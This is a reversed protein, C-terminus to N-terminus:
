LSIKYDKKEILCNENCFPSLVENLNKIVKEKTLSDNYDYLLIIKKNNSSKSIQYKIKM